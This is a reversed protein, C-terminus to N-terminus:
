DIAEKTESSDFLDKILVVFSGIYFASSFLIFILANIVIISLRTYAFFFSILKKTKIKKDNLLSAQMKM